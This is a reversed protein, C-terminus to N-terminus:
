GNSQLRTEAHRQLMARFLAAMLFCFVVAILVILWPYDTLLLTIRATMPFRGVRYAYNGIRYSAFQTGHLVSLSQSIATGQSSDLFAPVFQEAADSDRLVVAVVSRKSGRPWEFGEILADPLGGVTEIQGARVRETSRVRWWVDQNRNFFGATDHIHLGTEDVGVPLSDDLARLAPQDDVTGILLYDKGANANMAGAGAVTVNLAPAGTQAGFYGMMALYIELEGTSPHEPLVVTTEALDAKRTFPYGANSFLGLNPLVAWHVTGALDVYSNKLIMGQLNLPAAEANERKATRFVFKFLITNTYPRMDSVPIPVITGMEQSAKSTHPLPTSSVYAGNVYVQLMSGNGLPIGNYRYNLNLALNRTQAYYLDPPLRLTVRVPTSGDSQLDGQGGAGAMEGFSVNRETNLWRPADDPRRPTPMQVRPFRVEAGQLGNGLSLGVAAKVLEDANAGAIVLLKAVPDSPNARLAVVPGSAVGLNLSGPIERANEAIVIANGHPIAGISVSFRLAPGNALVGLWSAVIGAARLTEHSPQSLFVIPVVSHASAAADFFPLPLLSLDNVTAATTTVSGGSSKAAGGPQSETQAARGTQLTTGLLLALLLISATTRVSDIATVKAGTRTPLKQGDASISDAKAGSSKPVISVFHVEGTEPESWM